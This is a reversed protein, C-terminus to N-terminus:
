IRNYMEATALEKTSITGDKDKNKIFIFTTKVFFIDNKNFLCYTM